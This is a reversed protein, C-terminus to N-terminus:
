LGRGATITITHLTITMYADPAQPVLQGARALRNHEEPSLGFREALAPTDDCLERLATPDEAM